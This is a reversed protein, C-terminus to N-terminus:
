SPTIFISRIPSWIQRLSFRHLRWPFVPRCCCPSHICHIIDNTASRLLLMHSPLKWWLSCAMFIPMVPALLKPSMTLQAPLHSSMSLHRTSSNACFSSSFFQFMVLVLLASHLLGSWPDETDYSYDAYLFVPWQDGAVQIQGNILKSRTRSATHYGNLLSLTFPFESLISGTLARQACCHGQISM